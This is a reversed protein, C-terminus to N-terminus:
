RVHSMSGRDKWSLRVFARFAAGHRILPEHDRAWVWEVSAISSIVTEFIWVQVIAAIYLLISCFLSNTSLKKKQFIKQPYSM